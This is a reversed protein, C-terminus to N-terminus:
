KWDLVQGGKGYFVLKLMLCIDLSCRLKVAAVSQCRAVSHWCTRNLLKKERM